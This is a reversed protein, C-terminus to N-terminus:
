ADRVGPLEEKGSFELWAKKSRAICFEIAKLHGIDISAAAAVCNEAREVACSEWEIAAMDWMARDEYAKAIAERGHYEAGNKLVVRGDVCEELSPTHHLAVPIRWVEIHTDGDIFAARVELVFHELTQWTRLSRM